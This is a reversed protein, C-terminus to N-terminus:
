SIHKLLNPHLTNQVSLYSRIRLSSFVGSKPRNKFDDLTKDYIEGPLRMVAVEGERIGDLHFEIGEPGKCYYWANITKNRYDELARALIHFKLAEIVAPELGDKIVSLRDAMEPYGIVTEHSAGERSAGEKKNRYFEGRDLEPFVNLILNRSKWVVTIKFEPKHKKACVPCTYSMFSGNLIKELNEPEIDIDVDEKYEISFNCSCFCSINKKM